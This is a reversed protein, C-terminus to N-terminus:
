HEHHYAHVTKHFHHYPYHSRVIVTRIINLDNTIIIIIYNLSGYM